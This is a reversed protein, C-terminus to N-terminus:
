MKVRWSDHSWHEYKTPYLEHVAKKVGPWIPNVENPAGYDDGALWGNIKVKPAWERIDGKVSEYDHAADIFVMECSAGAIYRAAAFSDAVILDIVDGFGCDLINKHLAGALSGGAAQIAADHMYHGQEM